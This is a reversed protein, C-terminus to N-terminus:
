ITTRGKQKEDRFVEWIEKAIPGLEPLEEHSFWDGEEVEFEDLSLENHTTQAHFIHINDKKGHMTSVFSGVQTITHVDLGTEEKLERVAANESTEGKDINGGPFTWRKYGYSNRIILVKNNYEAIVKVGYGNPKFTRWYLLVLPITIPNLLKIIRGKM